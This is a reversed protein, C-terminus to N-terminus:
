VEARLEALLSIAEGREAEDLWPMLAIIGEEAERASRTIEESLAERAIREMQARHKSFTSKMALVRKALAFRDGGTQPPREAHAGPHQRPAGAVKTATGGELVADISGSEWEIARELTRRLRPSLRGARNNEIARLTEVAPGGREGVEIQTLGLETRRNRVAVALKDWMMIDLM